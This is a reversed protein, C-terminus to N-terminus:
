RSRSVRAGRRASAARLPTTPAPSAAVPPAEAVAAAAVPAPPPWENYVPRPPAAAVPATPAATPGPGTAGSPAEPADAIALPLLETFGKLARHFDRGVVEGARDPHLRAIVRRRAERLAGRSCPWVGVEAVELFFEADFGLGRASRPEVRPVEPAESTADDPLGGFGGQSSPPAKRTRARAVRPAAEAVAEPAMRPSTKPATKPAPTEQPSQARQPVRSPDFRRPTAGDALGSARVLGELARLAERATVPRKGSTLATIAWLPGGSAGEALLARLAYLSTHLPANVRGAEAALGRELARLDVAGEVRARWSPGRGRRGAPLPTVRVLEHAALWARLAVFRALDAEYAELSRGVARVLRADVLGAQGSALPPSAAVLGLADLLPTPGISFSLRRLSEM